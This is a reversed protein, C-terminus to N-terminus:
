VETRRLVGFRGVEMKMADIVVSGPVYAMKVDKTLTWCNEATYEWGVLPEICGILRDAASEADVHAVVHEGKEVDVMVTDIEELFLPDNDLAVRGWGYTREGGLCIRGLSVCWNELDDVICDKVWIDGKVYVQKGTRSRPSIYEVEHLTGKESVRNNWEIAASAYSNLFLYDFNEKKWFYQMDWEKENKGKKIAPYFYSFRFNEHLKAGIDKYAEGQMGRGLDRTLRATLAAWMVKGTIYTRTQQLNGLKRWGIHVPSLLRLGVAYRMWSM